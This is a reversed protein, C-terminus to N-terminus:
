WLIESKFNFKTEMTIEADKAYKTAEVNEFLYTVEATISSTTSALKKDNATYKISTNQGETDSIILEHDLQPDFNVAFNWKGDSKVVVSEQAGNDLTVNLTQGETGTGALAIVQYSKLSEVFKALSTVSNSILTGEVTKGNLKISKFSVDIPTAKELHNFLKTWHNAGNNIEKIGALGKELSLVTEELEKYEELDQNVQTIKKKTGSLQAAKVLQIGTVLLIFAICAAVLSIGFVTSYYTNRREKLKNEQVEPVLNIKFM